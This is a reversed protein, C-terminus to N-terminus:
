PTTSPRPSAPSPVSDLAGGSRTAPAGPSPPIPAGAPAGPQTPTVPATTPIGPPIFSPRTSPPQPVGNFPDNLAPTDTRPSAPAPMANIAPDPFATRPPLSPALSSGAGIIQGNLNTIPTFGISQPLVTVMTGDEAQFTTSGPFVPINVAGADIAQTRRAETSNIATIGRTQSSILGSPLRTTSERPQVVVTQHPGFRNEFAPIVVVTNQAAASFVGLSIAGVIAAKM